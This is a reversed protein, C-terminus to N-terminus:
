SEECSCRLPYNREKAKHHVQFVKTMAVDYTYFGAIGKGKYHVDLMLRNAEENSKQFITVLVEIVFEMTTYHDNHIIVKYMKPEKLETRDDLQLSYNLDDQNKKAM